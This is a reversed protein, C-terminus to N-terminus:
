LGNERYVLHFVVPQAKQQIDLWVNELNQIFYWRSDIYTVMYLM